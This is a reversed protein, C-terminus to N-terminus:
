PQPLWDIAVMSEIREFDPDGTVVIAGMDLALAVVHADVYDMGRGNKIRAASLALPRTVPMITIPSLDIRALARRRAQAGYRATVTYLVEGLHLYSMSLVDEGAIASEFLGAVRVAGPEDQFLALLAFSDLVYAAM